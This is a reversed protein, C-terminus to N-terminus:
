RRCDHDNCDDDQYPRGICYSGGNSPAPNSCERIRSRSGGGCDEDCGGWHGWTAWNGDVIKYSFYINSLLNILSYSSMHSTLEM